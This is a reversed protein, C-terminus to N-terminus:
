RDKPFSLVQDPHILDPDKIQNKNHEYLETWKAPNDYIEWYWAIQSLNEGERITHQAPWDRPINLIWEPYILDPDKILDRNGRYIRPWKLPDNYIGEYGAIKYLFEGKMVTHTRPLNRYYNVEKMQENYKQETASLTRDFDSPAKLNEVKRQEASIKSEAAELRAKADKYAAQLEALYKAAEEKKLDCYNEESLCCFEGSISTSALISIMMFSLVLTKNIKIM